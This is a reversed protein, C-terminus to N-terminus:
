VTQIVTPPAAHIPACLGQEIHQTKVTRRQRVKRSSQACSGIPASIGRRLAFPDLGVIDCMIEALCPADMASADNMHGRSALHVHLAVLPALDTHGCFVLEHLTNRQQRGVWFPGSCGCVTNPIEDHTMQRPRADRHQQVVALGRKQDGAEAGRDVSAKLVSHEVWVVPLVVAPATRAELVSRTWSLEPLIPALVLPHLGRPHFLAIAKQIAIGGFWSPHHQEDPLRKIRMNRTCPNNSAGQPCLTTTGEIPSWNVFAHHLCPKQKSSPFSSKLSVM